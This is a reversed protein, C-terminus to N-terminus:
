RYNERFWKACEVRNDFAIKRLPAASKYRLGNGHWAYIAEQKTAYVFITNVKDIEATKDDIVWFTLRSVAM